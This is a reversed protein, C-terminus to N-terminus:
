SYDGEGGTNGVINISKIGVGYTRSFESLSLFSLIPSDFSNLEKIEQELQDIRKFSGKRRIVGFLVRGGQIVAAAPVSNAPVEKEPLMMIRGSSLPKCGIPCEERV